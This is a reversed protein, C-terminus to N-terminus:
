LRARHEVVTLLRCLQDLIHSFEHLRVQLDMPLRKLSKSKKAFVAKLLELIRIKFVVLLKYSM